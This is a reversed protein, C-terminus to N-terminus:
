FLIRDSYVIQSYRVPAEFSHTHSPPSPARKGRCHAGSFGLLFFACHRQWRVAPEYNPEQGRGAGGQVGDVLLHLRRAQVGADHRTDAVRHQGAHRAAPLRAHADLALEEDGVHLHAWGMGDRRSKM